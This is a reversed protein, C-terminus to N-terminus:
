PTRQLHNTALTGGLIRETIDALHNVVLVTLCRGLTQVTGLQETRSTDLQVLVGLDGAAVGDEIDLNLLFDFAFFM